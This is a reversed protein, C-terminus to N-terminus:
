QQGEKKMAWFISAGATSVALLYLSARAIRLTRILANASRAQIIAAINVFFVANAYHFAGWTAPAVAFMQDHVWCAPSINVGWISDPVLWDGVKGAGCCTPFGAFTPHPWLFPGTPRILDVGDFREVITNM